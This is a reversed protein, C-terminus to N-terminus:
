YWFDKGDKRYGVLTAIVGDERERELPRYYLTRGNDEVVLLDKM